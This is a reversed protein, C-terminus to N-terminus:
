KVKDQNIQVAALSGFNHVITAALLATIEAPDYSPLVEVLDFGIFNMGTLSRIMKLTEHSNFGGVEPTGTGPAYAPDVFDIDFTLFCPTGGIVNKIQQVVDDIGRTFLEDQTVVNYGLELSSDIDWGRMGIQIVKDPQVLGEEYARIFPSGHWYKEDMYTDWTDTHSDFQLLAVPGHVKAAARLSALTISHDGGLGIPVINNKMLELMANEMIDYSKHINQTIVPLDGIDIAQTDEFPSVKLMENRPSLTLSAQRIAQPGFRAGARYSAATDFPMGLIALKTNERQSPLRMFTGSTCFDPTFNEFPNSM